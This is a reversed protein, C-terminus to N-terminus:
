NSTKHPSRRMGCQAATPIFIRILASVKGHRPTVTVSNGSFGDKDTANVDAKNELLVLAIKKYFLTVALM